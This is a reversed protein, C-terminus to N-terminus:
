GVGAGPGDLPAGAGAMEDFEAAEDLLGAEDRQGVVVAGGHEAGEHFQGIAETAGVVGAVIGAIEGSAPAAATQPSEISIAFRRSGRCCREHWFARGRSRTWKNRRGSGQCARPTPDDNPFSLHAVSYEM